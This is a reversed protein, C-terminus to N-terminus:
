GSVSATLPITKDAWDKQMLRSRDMNDWSNAWQSWKGPVGTMWGTGGDEDVAIYGYYFDMRPNGYIPSKEAWAYSSLGIPTWDDIFPALKEHTGDVGYSHVPAENPDSGAEMHGRIFDFVVPDTGSLQVGGYKEEETGLPVWSQAGAMGVIIFIALGLVLITRM